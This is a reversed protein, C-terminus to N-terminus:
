FGARGSLKVTPHDEDTTSYASSIQADVTMMTMLVPNGLRRSADSQM